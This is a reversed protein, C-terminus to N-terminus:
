RGKTRRRGAKCALLRPRHRRPYPLYRNATCVHAFGSIPPYPQLWSGNRVCHTGQERGVFGKRAKRWCSNGWNYWLRWPAKKRKARDVQKCVTVAVNGNWTTCVPNSKYMSKCERQNSEDEKEKLHTGQERERLGELENRGCSNWALVMVQVVARPM